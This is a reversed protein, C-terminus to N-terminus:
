NKRRQLKEIKDDLEMIDINYLIAEDHFENEIHLISVAIACDIFARADIIIGGDKMVLLYVNMSGGKERM